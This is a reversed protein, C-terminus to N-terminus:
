PNVCDPTSSVQSLNIFYTNKKKYALHKALEVFPFPIKVKELEKEFNFSHVNKEVKEQEEEAKKDRQVKQQGQVIQNSQKELNPKAQQIKSPM